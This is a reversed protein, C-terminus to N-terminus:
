AAILEKEPCYLATAELTSPTEEAEEIVEVLEEFHKLEFFKLLLCYVRCDLYGNPKNIVRSLNSENMGIKRAIDRLTMGRAKALERVKYKFKMGEAEQEM